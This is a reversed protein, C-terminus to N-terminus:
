LLFSPHQPPTSSSSPEAVGSVLTPNTLPAHDGGTGLMEPVQRYLVCADQSGQWSQESGYYFDGQKQATDAGDTEQLLSGLPGLFDEQAM